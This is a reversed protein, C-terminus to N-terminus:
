SNTIEKLSKNYFKEPNIVQGEKYMEFHLDNKVDSYLGCTGSKGIVQGQSVKDGKKVVIEGLSQYTTIIQTSTRIEITKGLLEDESVNTVTGSISSVVDFQEDSSYDIGSNQMYTGDYYIISKQQEEDTQDKDYFTKYVSVKESTYPKILKEEQSIVPVYNDFIYDNVYSFNSKNEKKSIKSYGLLVALLCVISIVSLLSAKVAPKLKRKKM